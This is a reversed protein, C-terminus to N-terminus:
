KLGQTIPKAESIAKWKADPKAVITDHGGNQWGEVGQPYWYVHKYGLRILRKATNWSGWCHPHCFVVIPHTLDKHTLDAVRSKLAAAFAPDSTGDGAGVLWIAGPITRHTPLWPMGEAMAPPKKPSEAVDLLLPHKSKNLKVFAASTLVTAGKLTYPTDGHMAGQWLGSPEPVPAPAAAGFFLAAALLLIVRM